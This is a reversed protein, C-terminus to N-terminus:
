LDDDWHTGGVQFGYSKLAALVPDPRSAGDGVPMWTVWVKKGGM